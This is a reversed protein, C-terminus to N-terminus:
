IKVFDLVRYSQLYLLRQTWIYVNGDVIKVVLETILFSSNKM